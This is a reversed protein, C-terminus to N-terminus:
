SLICPTSAPMYLRRRLWHYPIYLQVLPKLICVSAFKARDNTNVDDRMNKRVNCLERWRDYDGTVIVAGKVAWEEWLM